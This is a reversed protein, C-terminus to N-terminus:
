QAVSAVAAAELAIQRASAAAELAIGQELFWMPDEEATGGFDASLSACPAHAYLADLDDGLLHVRSKMKASMFPKVLFWLASMSWPQNVVHIGGLRYAMCKQSFHFTKRMMGFPFASSLKVQDWASFDAFTEAICCGLVQFYPNRSLVRTAWISFRLMIDPRERVLTTDRTMRAPVLTM